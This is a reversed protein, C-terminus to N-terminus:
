LGADDLRDLFSVKARHTERLTEVQAKFAVEDQERLALDRLDILLRVARDYAKPQKKQIFETVNRWTAEKQAALRDLYRRRNAEEQAKQRALEHARQAALKQARENAVAIAASHLDGVTRPRLLIPAPLLEQNEKYFRHLFENKWREGSEMAASVLLNRMEKESLKGVWEELEQRGPGDTWPASNAAAVALLDEDICLFEVLSRLPATLQGLGAPIPPEFANDDLEGSQASRLWGLYLSRIDARLLDSRLCILSGMWGTGDDLDDPELEGVDFGVMVQKATREVCPVSGTALQGIKEYDMWQKPLRLWFRRTGWNSVYVFADFYKELLKLPDAKLDGWEYHNTFSTETIEARTSISGLIDIEAGTLPRDVTRFEYYQYESM